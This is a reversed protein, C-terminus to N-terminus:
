LVLSDDDLMKEMTKQSKRLREISIALKTIEDRTQEESLNAVGLDIDLNGLSMERVKQTLNALPTLLEFRVLGYLFVTIVFFALAGDLTLSQGLLSWINQKFFTVRIVGATEGLRFSPAGKRAEHCTVCSKKVTIPKEYQFAKDKFAWNEESALARLDFSIKVQSSKALNAIYGAIEPDHLRFFDIEDGNEEKIGNAKAVAKLGQPKTVWLGDFSETSTLFSEVLQAMARASELLEKQQIHKASHYIGFAGLSLVLLFFLAVKDALSLRQIKKM